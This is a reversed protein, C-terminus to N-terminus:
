ESTQGASNRFRVVVCTINDLGGAERAAAILQACADQCSPAREVIEFIEGDLIHRTLGDSALLLTDGPDAVLDRVDVRINEETGLARTIINQVESHRAQEETILGRRLQEMVLSHDETLQEITGNHLLYARSDGAHAVTYKTGEVLAAVITAGMGRQGQNQAASSHIQRNAFQVANALLSARSPITETQLSPSTKAGCNRRCYELVSDVGIRSAVEGAAAGGMGDCVVYIGCLEDYGFSDENNGRVCGVDSQGAVQVDLSM